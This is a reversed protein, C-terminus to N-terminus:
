RSSRDCRSSTPRACVPDRLPGNGRHAPRPQVRRRLRRVPGGVVSGPVVAGANRVTASSRTPTPSAPAAPARAGPRRRRPRTALDRVLVVRRTGLAADVIERAGPARSRTTWPRASRSSWARSGDHHPVDSGAPRARGARDPGAGRAGSRRHRGRRDRAREAGRPRRDGRHRRGTAQGRHRLRQGPGVIRDVAARVGTGFTLAGVAQAGGSKVVM